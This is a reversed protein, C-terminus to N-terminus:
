AHPQRALGATASSRMLARFGTVTQAISACHNAALEHRRLAFESVFMLAVLPGSVLTVFAAWVAASNDVYLMVSLLTMAVFYITWAATVGRSYRVVAMSLAAPLRATASLFALTLCGAAGAIAAAFAAHQRTIM